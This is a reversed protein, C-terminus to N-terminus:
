QFRLKSMEQHLHELVVHSYLQTTALSAHGLIERVTTIPIGNSVMYTAATHRLFHLRAEVGCVRAANRFWHTVTDPHIQIFVPGIDRAPTMVELVPPLLPVLREKNGKGRLVAYPRKSTLHCDQWRLRLAETRRAGTWLYFVLLRHLEPKTKKAYRLIMNIEEPRLYRPIHSGKPLLKIKPKEPILKWERATSFASSIHRLYSNVSVPKVQRALCVKKFKEIAKTDIRGVQTDHGVVDGLLKLALRDNQYTSWSVGTRFELYEERFVRLTITRKSDLDVLRGKLWERQLNKFITKAENKDRTKLSRRKHREFEVYWVGNERQYLRMSM